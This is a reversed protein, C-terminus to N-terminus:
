TYTHSRCTNIHLIHMHERMSGQLSCQIGQLQHISTQSSESLPAPFWVLDEALVAFARLWQAMKCSQLRNNRVSDLPILLFLHCCSVCSYKKTMFFPPRLPLTFKDQLVCRVMWWGLLLKIFNEIQCCYKKFFLMESIHIMNDKWRKM